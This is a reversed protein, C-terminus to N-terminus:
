KLITLHSSILGIVVKGCTTMCCKVEDEIHCCRALEMKCNILQVDFHM